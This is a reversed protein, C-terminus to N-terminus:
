TVIYPHYIYPHIVKHEKYLFLLDTLFTHEIRELGRICQRWERERLIVGEKERCERERLIGEGKKKKEEIDRELDGEEKERRERERM